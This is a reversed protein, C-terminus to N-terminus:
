GAVYPIATSFAKTYLEEAPLGYIGSSDDDPLLSHLETCAFVRVQTPIEGDMRFYRACDTEGLLLEGLEITALLLAGDDV